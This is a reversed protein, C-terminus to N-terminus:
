SRTWTVNALAASDANIHLIVASEVPVMGDCVHATGVLRDCPAYVRVAVSPVLLAVASKVM